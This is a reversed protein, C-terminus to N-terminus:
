AMKALKLVYWLNGCVWCLMCQECVNSRIHIYNFIWIVIYVEPQILLCQHWTQANAILVHASGSPPLIDSGGGGEHFIVFIYPKMAIRTLIGKFIPMWTQAMILVGAFAMLIANRQRASSPGSITTNPYERGEDALFCFFFFLWLQIKQIRAHILVNDLKGMYRRRCTNQSFGSQNCLSFFVSLFWCSDRERKEIVNM